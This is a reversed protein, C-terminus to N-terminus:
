QQASTLPRLKLSRVKVSGGEAFLRVADSGQDPFIQDTIVTQGRGGFVEVSSRDVYVTFRVRGNEAPLPGAHSGPFESSFGTVGSRTRDVFLRGQNRDYGVLTGKGDPGGRVVLGFRTASGLEFEATVELLDGRTPLTTIGEAVKRNYLTYAPERRLSRLTPVPRQTLRVQGDIRELGLERPLSQASRWPSTPIKDGYQWNNMWGVWLRRGGPVDNWSVAAYFDKGYDAWSYRQKSSLAPQDAFMIHDVNIHGWGGSNFDNIHIEAERGAFERVDWSVWDLHEADQGTASRVVKGDVVLNVATETSRPLVPQDSAMVQDVLIHGWGGENGDVIQIRAKKGALATVDWSAWNLQESDSGTTTRVVQGDVLLNVVTDPHNGGGVLLNLYPKDISFEPSTLTGTTRDGDEFDALVEGEPPTGDGTGAVHPHAGGGVLLNIYDKAITFRPSTMSGQPADGDRFSNVLGNGLYGSVPLQGPLAGRAPGSGFPGDDVKWSGYGDGEFDAFLQGAPPPVDAVINDATFTRGDFDGVFYQTGSGGAISGPNLSVVLVWKKEGDVPLPFLDPCEWAGGTANAPGFDSLAKWSKLDASRYFRIKREASLAVSMVWYGGEGYWFVKPDRFEKSEIDLIPNGSYKTWTRGKDTSYALSQAQVGTKPYWSTYIAVMASKGFGASNSEDIVVSGSFIHEDDTAPIAVGLEKWHLLDSSMAHGWSMNGWTDGKPNYQYFLHYEGEYWVLGNPDNMWNRAPSYHFQPRYPESSTGEAAHSAPAIGLACAVALAALAAPKGPRRM